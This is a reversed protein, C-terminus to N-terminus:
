GRLRRRFGAILSAPAFVLLLSTPEPAAVTVDFTATGLAEFSSADPGGVISFSATYEGPLITNGILLTFLEGHFSAGPALSLPTNVFFPTDDLLMEFSPVLFSTGNLFVDQFDSNLILGGFSITEGPLASRTPADLSFITGATAASVALAFLLFLRM